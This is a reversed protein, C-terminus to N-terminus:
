AVCSQGEKRAAAATTRRTDDSGPGEENNSRNMGGRRAVVSEMKEVPRNEARPAFPELRRHNCMSIFRAKESIVVAPVGEGRVREGFPALAIAQSKQGAAAQRNATECPYTIARAGKPSLTPTLPSFRPRARDREALGRHHGALVRSLAVQWSGNLSSASVDWLGIGPGLSIWPRAPGPRPSAELPAQLSAPVLSRAM